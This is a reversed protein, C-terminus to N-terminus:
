TADTIQQDDKGVRVVPVYVHKGNGRKSKPTVVTVVKESHWDVKIICNKETDWYMGVINYPVGEEDFLPRRGRQLWVGKKIMNLIRPINPPEEHFYERWQDKFHTTLTLAM